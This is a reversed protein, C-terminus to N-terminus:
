MVKKYRVKGKTMDSSMGNILLMIGSLTSRDVKQTNNKKKKKFKEVWKSRLWTFQLTVDARRNEIM